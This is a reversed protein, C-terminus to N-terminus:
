KGGVDLEGVYVSASGIGGDPFRFDSGIAQVAKLMDFFNGAITIQDVPQARAGGQVAYGKSLLSFDGSVTDAGAHLGMVETIVLGDGLQSLLQEFSQQGPELLFNSPSVRVPAAYGAKSANGTTEVGDKRATKLDHLFTRFVGGDVLVHRRSPVGEADFPRSRHGDTRLPDDVLTVCPAAVTQGLKGRLLSLGEQANEASFASAFVGLLDAMVNNKLVVRYRGSPVPAANLYSLAVTAADAALADADLEAFDRALKVDFGVAVADGDKAIPALYAGCADDCYARDMGYTNVIRVRSRGTFVTNSSVKDIRPDYAKAAQELKLCLALKDEARVRALADNQLALAPCPASGDYLFSEDTDECLTAADLAGAVLQDVAKDDFAETAAYGMRGNLMGRFGLGRTQNSAYKTIEGDTAVAEFSEDEVIYAEAATFGAAKAKAFLTTLFAQMDM